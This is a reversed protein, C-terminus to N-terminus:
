PIPEIAINEPAQLSFREAPIDGNLTLDNINLALSVDEEPMHLAIRRPFGDTSSFRSYNVALRTQQHHVYKSGTLRLQGDFYFTQSFFGDVLLLELLDGRQQVQAQQYDVIPPEYLLLAVLLQPPLPLRVFHSFNEQTASGRYFRPPSTTNLLVSLIEGDSTLQMVLQGFGTLADVRVRDPQEALIFQQTSFHKGQATISVSAATDLRSNSGVRAQLIEVLESAAPVETWLPEPPRACANFLLPVLLLLWKM